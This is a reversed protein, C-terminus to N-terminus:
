AWAQLQVVLTQPAPRSSALAASPWAPLGAALMAVMAVWNGPALMLRSPRALVETAPEVM